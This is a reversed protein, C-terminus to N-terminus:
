DHRCHVIGAFYCKKTIEEALFTVAKKTDTFFAFWAQRSTSSSTAFYIGAGAFCLRSQNLVATGIAGGLNAVRIDLGEKLIVNYADSM